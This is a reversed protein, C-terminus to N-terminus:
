IHYIKLETSYRQSDFGLLNWRNSDVVAELWGHKQRKQRADIESGGGWAILHKSQELTEVAANKKDRHFRIHAEAKPIRRSEEVRDALDFAEAGYIARLADYMRQEIELPNEAWTTWCLLRTGEGHPCQLQDGSKYVLDLYQPMIQIHLALAPKALDQEDRDVWRRLIIHYERSPQYDDGQGMGAKWKSSKVLLAYEGDPLWEATFDSVAIYPECTKASINDRWYTEAADYLTGRQGIPADRSELDFDAFNNMLGAGHARPEPFTDHCSGVDTPESSDSGVDDVSM